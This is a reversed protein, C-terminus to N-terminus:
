LTLLCPLTKLVVTANGPLLTSHVLLQAVVGLLFVAREEMAHKVKSFLYQEWHGKARGAPHVVCRAELHVDEAERDGVGLVVEVVGQGLAVPWFALTRVADDGHHVIRQAALWGAAEPAVLQVCVVATTLVFVVIYQLVQRKKGNDAQRVICVQVKHNGPVCLRCWVCVKTKGLLMQAPLIDQCWVLNTGTCLTHHTTHPSQM